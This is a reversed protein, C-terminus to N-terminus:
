GFQETFNTLLVQVRGPQDEDERFSLFTSRERLDKMAKFNKCDKKHEPWHDVQCKKSCYQTFGCKSCLMIKSDEKHERCYGCFNIKPQPKYEEKYKQKLCSCTPNEKIIFKIAAREGGVAVEANKKRAPGYELINDHSKLAIIAGATLTAGETKGDLIKHTVYQLFLGKITERLVSDNLVQPFNDFTIGMATFVSLCTTDTDMVVDHTRYFCEIFQACISLHPSNSGRPPGGHHCAETTTTQASQQM